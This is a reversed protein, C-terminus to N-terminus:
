ALQRRRLSVLKVVWTLKSNYSLQCLQTDSKFVGRKIQERSNVVGILFSLYTREM